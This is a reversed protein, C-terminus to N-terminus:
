GQALRPVIAEIAAVIQPAADAVARAVTEDDRNVLAILEETSRLDLDDLEGREHETIAPNSMRPPLHKFPCSPEHFVVPEAACHDQGIDRKSSARPPSYVRETGSGSGSHPGDRLPGFAARARM